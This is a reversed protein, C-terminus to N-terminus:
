GLLRRGALPPLDKTLLIFSSQLVRGIAVSDARYADERYDRATPCRASETLIYDTMAGSRGTIRDLIWDFPIQAQDPQCSECSLVMRLAAVVTVEGVVILQLEDAPPDFFDRDM